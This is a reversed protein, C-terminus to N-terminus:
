RTYIFRVSAFALAFLYTVLFTRYFPHQQRLHQYFSISTAAILPTLLLNVMRLAPSHILAVAYLWLSAFGLLIGLLIYILASVWLVPTRRQLRKLSQEVLLEGIIQIALELILEFLLQM